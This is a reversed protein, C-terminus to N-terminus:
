ASRRQDQPEALALRSTIVKALLDLFLTGMGPYFRAPDPSGIALLGDKELPIFVTSQVWQARNKFLMDLKERDFRGCVSKGRDLEKQWQQLEPDDRRIMYVPTDEECDIVRDFLSINLIDASFEARLAQSLRDFFSGLDEIIMLELTLHHLRHMLKENDTAVKVLQNLQRSMKRNQERLRGVQREILSVAAGSEHPLNISELIEPHRLLFDPDKELYKAVIETMSRTKESM